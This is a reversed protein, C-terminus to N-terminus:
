SLNCPWRKRNEVRWFLCPYHWEPQVHRLHMVLVETVWFAQSFVNSYFRVLLRRRTFWLRIILPHYFITNLYMHLSEPMNCRGPYVLGATIPFGETQIRGSGVGRGNVLRQINTVVNWIYQLNKFSYFSNSFNIMGCIQSNMKRPVCIGKLPSNMRETEWKSSKNWQLM